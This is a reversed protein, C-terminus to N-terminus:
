PRLRFASACLPLSLAFLLSNAVSLLSLPQPIKPQLNCITLRLLGAVPSRPGCAAAPM